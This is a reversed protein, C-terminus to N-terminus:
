SKIQRCKSSNLQQWWKDWSLNSGKWENHDLPLFNVLSTDKLDGIRERRTLVELQIHQTTTNFYMALSQRLENLATETFHYQDLESEYFVDTKLNNQTNSIVFVTQTPDIASFRDRLYRWRTLEQEFTEKIGVRRNEQDTVLFGHWFYLNFEPWYVRGKQINISKKTFDPIRQKLLEITSAPPCILWDFLGSPAVMGSSDLTTNQESHTLRRLQHTTQCSMGLSILTKRKAKSM